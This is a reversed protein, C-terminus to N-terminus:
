WGELKDLEFQVLMNDPEVKYDLQKSSGAKLTIQPETILVGTPGQIVIVECYAKYGAQNEVCIIAIGSSLPTLM